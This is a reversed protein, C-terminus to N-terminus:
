ESEEPNFLERLGNGVVNLALVTLTILLGPLFVLHAATQMYARGEALMVGWSVQPAVVGLGLFSLGSEALIMFGVELTALVLITNGANPIMHKVIIQRHNLGAARLGMVFTRTRLSLAESRVVRAYRAWGVVSLVMVVMVLSRGQTAVLAVALLFTPFALQADVVRSIIADPWGRFYGAVIGIIAGFAGGITVAGLAILLSLQGGVLLRALMDRGFHDTGLPKAWEGGEAWIPPLLRRPLDHSSADVFPTLPAITTVLVAIALLAIQLKLRSRVVETRSRRKRDVSRSM